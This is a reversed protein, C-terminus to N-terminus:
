YRARGGSIDFVGGTTFSCRESCLWLAMEAIEGPEGLRGMPSDRVMGQVVEEGLSRIMPTDVPGPTICNVLVQRGVLERALAKTFAIVGASAASYAALGALGEKGALSGFNVVRSGSRLHPLVAQTVELLGVLNVQVIERWAASAHEAFPVAVGLFGASNVLIDVPGGELKALASRISAADALDVRESRGGPVRAERLDWGHVRAGCAALRQAIVSGIGGAAGAVIATRGTFDYTDAM